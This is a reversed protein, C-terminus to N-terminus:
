EKISGLYKGLLCDSTINTKSYYNIVHERCRSTIVNLREPNCAFTLSQHKCNNDIVWSILVVDWEAGQATNATGVHINHKEIESYKIEEEIMKTILNVQAKFMSLIAITKNNNKNEKLWRKLDKIIMEAEKINLTKNKDTEGNIFVKKLANIEAKKASKIMGGYFMDNNFKFVNEPMRYQENLMICKDTYYQCFDFLSNKAYDWVLQLDAPVEYKTLFSKNKKQEMFMLSKLQKEDGVVCAKKARFACPLFSAIDVESSEDCIVLDFLEKELPLVDSIEGTTVCFCPIAELIPKFDITAMIKDRQSKKKTLCSKAQILLNKRNDNNSLLEILVNIRKTKLLKRAEEEKQNFLYKIINSKNNNTLDIKGELLDMIRNALEKQSEKKGGRMAVLGAGLNNLKNTIVDVAHDSKSVILVKRGTMIFHSAIATITSSKGTGAAGIVTTLTNKEVEKLAQEQSANLLLVKIPLTLKNEKKSIGNIIELVSM